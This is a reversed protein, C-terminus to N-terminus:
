AKAGLALRWPARPGATRAHLAKGQVGVGLDGGMPAVLPFAQAPIGGAARQGQHRRPVSRIMAAMVCPSTM